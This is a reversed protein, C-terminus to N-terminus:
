FLLLSLMFSEKIWQVLLQNKGDQWCRLTTLKQLFITVYELKSNLGDFTLEADGTPTRKVVTIAGNADVALVTDLSTDFATYRWVKEGPEATFVDAIASIEVPVPLQKNIPEGVLKSVELVINKDPTM